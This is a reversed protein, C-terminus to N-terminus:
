ILICLLANGQFYLFCMVDLSHSVFGVSYLRRRVENAWELPANALGYVNGLIRYLRHPFAGALDILGDRPPFMFLTRGKQEGQLFAAEIDGAFLKWGEALYSIYFQLVVFISLRSCTPANRDLSALDPDNCGMVVSLGVSPQPTESEATRTVIHPM